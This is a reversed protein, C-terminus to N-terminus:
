QNLKHDKMFQLTEQFWPMNVDFNVQNGKDDIYHSWIVIGDCLKYLKELELRWIKRDLFKYGLSPSKPNPSYQPWIFAYVPRRKSRAKIVKMSNDVMGIWVNINAEFTYYSPYVVNSVNYIPESIAGYHYVSVLSKPDIKRYSKILSVYKSTSSDRLSPDSLNWHEVDLCTPVTVSRRSLNGAAIIKKSDLFRRNPSRADKDHYNTSIVGDEYILNFKRFGYISLDPKNKCLIADFIPFNPKEQAIGITYIFSAVLLLIIKKIKSM